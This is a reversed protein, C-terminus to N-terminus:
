SFIKLKEEVYEAIQFQAINSGCHGCREEYPFKPTMSHCSSREYSLVGECHVSFLNRALIACWIPVMTM